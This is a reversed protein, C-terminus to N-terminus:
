GSHGDGARPSSGAVRVIGLADGAPPAGNASEGMMEYLDDAGMPHGLAEIRGEADILVATPAIDVGFAGSVSDDPDVLVPVDLGYEEAMQACRGRPSRCVVVVNGAVKHRLASLQPLTLKCSVCDPAVFLLATRRGRWGDSAFDAGDVVPAVIDPAPRRESEPAPVALPEDERGQTGPYVTRVLGVALLTSFIALAWLLAYSIWFATSM